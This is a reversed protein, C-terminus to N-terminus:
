QNYQIVPSSIITTSCYRVTPNLDPGETVFEVVEKLCEVMTRHLVCGTPAECEAYQLVDVVIDKYTIINM